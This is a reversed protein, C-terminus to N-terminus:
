DDSHILDIPKNQGNKSAFLVSLLAIAIVAISIWLRAIDMKLLIQDLLMLMTFLGAVIQDSVRTLKKGWNESRLRYLLWGFMVLGAIKMSLSAILDMM